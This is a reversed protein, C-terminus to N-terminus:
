KNGGPTVPAPTETPTVRSHIWRRLRMHWSRMKREHAHGREWHHVSNAYYLNTAKGQWGCTCYAFVHWDGWHVRTKHEAEWPDGKPETWM